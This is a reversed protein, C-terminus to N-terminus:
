PVPRWRQAVSASLGDVTVPGAVADLDADQLLCTAGSERAVEQVADAVAIADARGLGGGPGLIPSDGRLHEVLVPDLVRGLARRVVASPDPTM